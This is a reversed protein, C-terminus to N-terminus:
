EQELEAYVMPDARILQEVYAEAIEQPVVLLLAKGTSQATQYVESAQRLNEIDPIINLLVECVPDEEYDEDGLLIVKYLPVEETHVKRKPKAVQAGPRGKAGGGGAGAKNIQRTQTMPRAIQPAAGQMSVKIATTSSPSYLRVGFSPTLAMLAIVAVLPRVLAM